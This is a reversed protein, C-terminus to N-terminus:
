DHGLALQTPEPSHAIQPPIVSITHPANEPIFHGGAFQVTRGAIAAPREGPVVIGVLNVPDAASITVSQGDPACAGTARIAPNAGNDSV